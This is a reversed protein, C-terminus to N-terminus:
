VTKLEWLGGGTDVAAVHGVVVCYQQIWYSLQSIRVCTPQTENNINMMMEMNCIRYHINTTIEETKGFLQRELSCLKQHLPHSEEDGYLPILNIKMYVLGQENDNNQNPLLKQWDADEDTHQADTGLIKKKTEIGVHGEGLSAMDVSDDKKRVLKDETTECSNTQANPVSLAEKTVGGHVQEQKKLWASKDSSSSVSMIGAVNTQTKRGSVTVPMGYKHRIRNECFMERDVNYTWGFKRAICESLFDVLQEWTKDCNENQKAVNFWSTLNHKTICKSKIISAFRDVLLAEFSVMLKANQVPVLEDILVVMERFYLKASRLTQLVAVVQEFRPFNIYTMQHDKIRVNCKGFPAFLEQIEERAPAGKPHAFLLTFHVPYNRPKVEICYMSTNHATNLQQEVFGKLTHVAATDDNTKMYIVNSCVHKKDAAEKLPAQCHDLAVNPPAVLLSREFGFTEISKVIEDVLTDPCSKILLTVTPLPSTM